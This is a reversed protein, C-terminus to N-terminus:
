RRPPLLLGFGQQKLIVFHRSFTGSGAEAHFPNYYLWHRLQGHLVLLAITALVVQKLGVAGAVLCM